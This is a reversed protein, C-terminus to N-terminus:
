TRICVPDIGYPYPSGSYDPGDPLPAQNRTDLSTLMIQPHSRLDISAKSMNATPSYYVLKHNKVYIDKYITM